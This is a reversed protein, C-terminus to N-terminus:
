ATEVLELEAARRAADKRTAAGLKLLVAAV